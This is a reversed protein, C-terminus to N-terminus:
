QVEQVEGKPQVDGHRHIEEAIQLGMLSLASLFFAAMPM